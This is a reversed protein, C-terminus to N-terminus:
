AALRGRSRALEEFLALYRAASAELTYAPPLRSPREAAVALRALAEAMGDLDFPAFRQCPLDADAAGAPTTVVPLGCALAELVVLPLGEARRTPLLLADAASLWDAMEERAVAAQILLGGALAGAARTRELRAREPGSGLILLRAQSRRARLRRVVELASALGKDAQLRGAFLVLPADEAVGLRRRLGARAGARFAFGAPDVGNPLLRVPAGGLLASTPWAQLDRRVAEGVAAVADYDRYARDRFVAWALQRPAGALACLRRARLKSAIEGVSVGHAQFVMVPRGARPLAALANAASSVGLVAEVPGCAAYAERTRRWWAASYRGPPADLARVRVRELLDRPAGGATTMVEVEAGAAGLACALDWASAALGGPGHPPLVRSLM